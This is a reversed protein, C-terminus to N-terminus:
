GSATLARRRLLATVERLKERYTRKHKAELNLRVFPETNSARLSMWWDPNRFELRIGDTRDIKAAARRYRATVRALLRRPHAAKFNIEPSRCPIPRLPSRRSIRRLLGIRSIVKLATAIGSEAYFFDRFYYHGSYEAAFAIGRRRMTKRIYVNGVPTRIIRRGRLLAEALYGFRVDLMIQRRAPALLAAVIDPSIPDGRNDFFLARDGDADFLVGLDARHKLVARRLQADAGKALPNPGHHPFRGDPAANLPICKIGGYRMMRRLIPGTAGDSCDFVATVSKRPRLFRRLFRAYRTIYDM